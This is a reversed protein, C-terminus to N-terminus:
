DKIIVGLGRNNKRERPQLQVLDERLRETEWDRDRDRNLHSMIKANFILCAMIINTANETRKWKSKDKKMENNNAKKKTTSSVLNLGCSPTCSTNFEIMFVSHKESKDWWRKTALSDILHHFKISAPPNMRFIKRILLFFM